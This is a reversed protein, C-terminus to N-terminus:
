IKARSLAIANYLACVISINELMLSVCHLSIRWLYPNQLPRLSFVM